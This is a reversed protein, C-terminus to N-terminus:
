KKKIIFEEGVDYKNRRRYKPYGEPGCKTFTNSCKGDVMCHAKHNFVCCISHIMQTKVINSLDHDVQDNPLEAAIIKDIHDAHM